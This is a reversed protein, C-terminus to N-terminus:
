AVKFPIQFGLVKRDRKAEQGGDPLSCGRDCVRGKKGTGPIRCYDTPKEKIAV